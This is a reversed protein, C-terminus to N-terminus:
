ARSAARLCRSSGSFMKRRFAFMSGAPVYSAEAVDRWNGEPAQPSTVRGQAPDLQFHLLFHESRFTLLPSPVIVEGPAIEGLLNNYARRQPYFPQYEFYQRANETQLRKGLWGDMRWLALRVLQEHQARAELRLVVASVWVLAAIVLLSAGGYLLWFTRRPKM